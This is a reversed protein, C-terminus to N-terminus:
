NARGIMIEFIKKQDNDKGIGRPVPFMNQNSFLMSWYPQNSGAPYIQAFYVVGSGVGGNAGVDCNETATTAQATGYQQRSDYIDLTNGNDLSFATGNSHAISSSDIVAARFYNVTYLPNDDGDLQNFAKPISDTLEDADVAEVNLLLMAHGTDHKHLSAPFSTAESPCFNFDGGYDLCYAIVDGAKANTFDANGHEDVISEWNNSLNDQGFNNFFYYYYFAKVYTGYVLKSNHTIQNTDRKFALKIEDYADEYGDTVKLLYTIWGSCDTYAFPTVKKSNLLNVDIANPLKGGNHQNLVQDKPTTDTNDTACNGENCYCTNGNNHLHWVGEVANNCLKNGDCIAKKTQSLTQNSSDNQPLQYTTASATTITCLMLMLLSSAIYRLDSTKQINIKM